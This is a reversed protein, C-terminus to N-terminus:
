AYLLVRRRVGTSFPFLISVRQPLARLLLPLVPPLM